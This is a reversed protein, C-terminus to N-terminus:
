GVKVWRSLRRDLFRTEVREAPKVECDVLRVVSRFCCELARPAQSCLVTAGSGLAEEVLDLLIEQYRGTTAFAGEILVLTSAQEPARKKSGRVKHSLVRALAGCAVLFRREAASITAPNTVLTLRERLGEPVKSLVTDIVDYAWLVKRAQELNNRMVQGLSSAGIPLSSVRWDYLTGRCAPCEKGKLNIDGELCERCRYAGKALDLDDVSFGSRRAAQSRALGEALARQLGLMELVSGFRTDHCDVRECRKIAGFNCVQSYKRRQSFRHEIEDFLHPIASRTASQVLSAAGIPFSFREASVSGFMVDRLEVCGHGAGESLRRPSAQYEPEFLVIAPDSQYLWTERDTAGAMLGVAPADVACTLGLIKSLRASVTALHIKEASTLMALPAGIPYRGLGASLLEHLVRSEEASREFDEGLLDKVTLVAGNRFMVPGFQAHALAATSGFGDCEDCAVLRGREVRLWGEGKCRSCPVADYLDALVLTAVNQDCRPCLWGGSLTGLERGLEERAVLYVVVLQGGGRAFWEQITEHQESLRSSPVLLLVPEGDRGSIDDTRVVKGEVYAREVGLLECREALPVDEIGDRIVLAVFGEAPVEFSSFAASKQAVTHCIPCRPALNRVVLPALLRELGLALMISKPLRGFLSWALAFTERSEFPTPFVVVEGGSPTHVHAGVGGLAEGLRIYSEDSLVLSGQGEPFLRENEHQEKREDM